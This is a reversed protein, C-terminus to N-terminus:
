VESIRTYKIMTGVQELDNNFHKVYFQVYCERQSINGTSCREPIVRKKEEKYCLIIYERGLSM